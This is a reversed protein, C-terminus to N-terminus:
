SPGQPMYSYQPPLYGWMMSGPPQQMHQMHQMHMGMGGMAVQQQMHQQAVLDAPPMGMQPYLGMQAAGQAPVAAAPQGPTPKQPAATGKKAASTTAHALGEVEKKVRAPIYRRGHRELVHFAFQM